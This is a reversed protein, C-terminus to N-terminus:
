VVTTGGDLALCAGTAYRAELGLYLIAEAVEGATAFRALPVRGLAEIRTAAPDDTLALEAQLMPTDIPGPLVANVRVAPALEAALAKTLGVVGAKAACYHAFGAMGISGLESGVNVIAGGSGTRMILGAARAITFTGTLNIALSEGWTAADLDQLAVPLCVGASNVVLDLGGLRKNASAVANEAAEADAVDCVLAFSAQGLEGALEALLGTRRALLAVQAGEGALRTAVARGVGSSAGTVLARIGARSGTM